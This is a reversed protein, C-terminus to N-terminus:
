LGQNHCKRTESHISEKSNHTEKVIAAKTPPLAQNFSPCDSVVIRGRAEKM